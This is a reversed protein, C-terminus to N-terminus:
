IIVLKEQKNLLLVDTKVIKIVHLYIYGLKDYIALLISRRNLMFYKIEPIVDM